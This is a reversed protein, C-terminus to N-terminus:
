KVGNRTDELDVNIGPKATFPFCLQETYVRLFIMINDHLLEYLVEDDNVHM